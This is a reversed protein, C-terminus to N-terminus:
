GVTVPLKSWGAVTSANVRECDEWLVEYRPMFDLLHDLAIATEMRGLAAGLCSHVGYGLALHQQTRAHNRDIDFVDPDTFVDPDRNAAVGCLLVPKGAPITIGHLSVDKVTQRLTYLVPSDYRMVEDVAAPIKTRDDHLKRWEDPHQGFVAVANAVLKTVTETGAGGVLMAFLTIEDDALSTTGGIEREVEASILTSIMDDRPQVRREQVLSYCYAAANLLMTVTTESPASQGPQYRLAEEVFERFQQRHEAPVGVMSTIVEAPFVATFEGVVDFRHPDVNNLCQRVVEVITERQAEIARPTFAKNVLGRMRGHEPPDMYLIAPPPPEGSRMMALDLGGASSYTQFDRYAAAVDEYRTLAYFDLEEHYYVPAETRLRRYIAHPNAFFEESYPDFVLQSEITM